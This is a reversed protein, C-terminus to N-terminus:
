PQKNKIYRHWYVRKVKDWFRNNTVSCGRRNWESFHDPEGCSSCIGYPLMEYKVNRWDLRSGEEVFCCLNGEFIVLRGFKEPYDKIGIVKKGTVHEIYQFPNDPSYKDSTTKLEM